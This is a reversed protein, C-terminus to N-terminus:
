GQREEEVEEADAAKEADPDGNTSYLGREVSVVGQVAGSGSQKRAFCHVIYCSRLHSYCM